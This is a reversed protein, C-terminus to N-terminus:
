CCKLRREEFPGSVKFDFFKRFISQRLWPKQYNSSEALRPVGRFTSNTRTCKPSCILSLKTGAYNDSVFIITPALNLKKTARIHPSNVGFFKRPQNKSM